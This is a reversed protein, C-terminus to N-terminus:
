YPSPGLLTILDTFSDAVPTLNDFYQSAKGKRAEKEHNWYAIVGYNDKYLSMILLDGGEMRAIPMYWSPIRKHFVEIAQFLSAWTPEDVISFFWSVDNKVNKLYRKHPKGGNYTKLFEAYDNTLQIDNKSEFDELVNIDLKGFKNPEIIM